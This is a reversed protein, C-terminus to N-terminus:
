ELSPGSSEELSPGSSRELSPGSPRELSPESPRELSPESPRELSPEPQQSKTWQRELTINASPKQTHPVSAEVSVIIVVVVAFVIIIIIIMKRYKMWFPRWSSVPGPSVGLVDKVQFWAMDNRNCILMKSQHFLVDVTVIVDPNEVLRRSEPVFHDKDYTHHMVVLVIPKGGPIKDMAEGIDTGVRSAIPCFLVLYDSQEPSIVEIQGMGKLDNVYTEHAGNTCGAVSVHFKKGPVSIKDMAERIYYLSIAVAVVAVAASKQPYHVSAEVSVIVGGVVIVTIIIMKRYKRWYSLWSFVPGPSVGLVDKVQFWATDNRNCILMNSEHFLVDVAVIVDPNEVLRRSEPVFHDKDYTHHMVVLVIPKGGSIKDMAEGINLVTALILHLTWSCLSMFCRGVRQLVCTWSLWSSDQAPSVGLVDKVQFWATDNRNCILMKSEHFLVDVTVIVDPNEVLRRSEPVFHDKDYTHHMVVLVIPKGGPIKDMAEGIDKGVRSAIPCFLVLYDSQEPSVVEIQGMGKLDNVYTQHAGNTCGAVSVHFKRGPVKTQGQGDMNRLNTYGASNGLKM